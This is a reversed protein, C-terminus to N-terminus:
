VVDIDDLKFIRRKSLVRPWEFADHARKELVIDIELGHATRQREHAAGDVADFRAEFIQSSNAEFQVQKRM